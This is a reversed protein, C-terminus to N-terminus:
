RVSSTAYSLTGTTATSASAERVQHPLRGMPLEVSWETALQPVLAGTQPDTGIMYEYMPVLQIQSQPSLGRGVNNSLLSPQQTGVVVRDVKPGMMVDSSVTEATAAPQAMTMSSTGSDTTSAATTTARPNASSPSESDSDDDGGCAAIMALMLALAALVAFARTLFPASSRPRLEEERVSGM